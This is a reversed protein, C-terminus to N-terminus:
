AKLSLLSGRTQRVAFTRFLLGIRWMGRGADDAPQVNTVEGVADCFECAIRVCAGLRLRVPVVLRMGQISLDESTGMMPGLPPSAVAVHVPLQWDIREVSRQARGKGPPPPPPVAHLPSRCNACYADRREAARVSHRTGCFVCNMCAQIPPAASGPLEWAALPAPRDDHTTYAGAAVPGAPGPLALPASESPVRYGDPDHALARDYEARRAPDRLTTIAENILAALAHDGGLDPHKRLRHMVTRYAAEIVEVSADPQVQLLKYFDCRNHM